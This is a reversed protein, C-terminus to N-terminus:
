DSRPMPIAAVPCPAGRLVRELHSGRFVDLLGDRGDTTMVILDTGAERAADLIGDIVDGSRVSSKFAWGDGASLQLPPMGEGVHLVHIEVPPDGLASAARIAMEVAAQPDPKSAVPVLIRRLSLRGDSPSVFGACGAPVFLTQVGAARAAKQAVSGQLFRPLGERAETALVMLDAPHDHLFDLIADVPDSSEVGVKRVKVGLRRFVEAQEAGPELLGWKELTERVRPFRRGGRRGARNDANMITFTAHRALAIALAHAFAVESAPSFDTPHFVRRVFSQM